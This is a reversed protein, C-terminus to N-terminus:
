WQSELRSMDLTSLSGEKRVVSIKWVLFSFLPSLSISIKLPFFFFREINIKGSYVIQLTQSSTFIRQKCLTDLLSRYKQMRGLVRAIQRKKKHM